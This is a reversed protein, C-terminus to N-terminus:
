RKGKRELKKWKYGIPQYGEEKMVNGITPISPAPESLNQEIWELVTRPSDAGADLAARVRTRIRESEELRKGPM